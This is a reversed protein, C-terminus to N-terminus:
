ASQAVLSGDFQLARLMGRATQYHSLWRHLCGVVLHLPRIIQRSGACKKAVLLDLNDRMPHCSPTKGHIWLREGAEVNGFCVIPGGMHSAQLRSSDQVSSVCYKNYLETADHVAM